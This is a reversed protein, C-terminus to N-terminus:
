KISVDKLTVYEKNVGDGKVMYGKKLREIEIEQKAIILHLREEETLSKSTCLAAFHNGTKKKNVLGETGEDIYKYIWNSLM